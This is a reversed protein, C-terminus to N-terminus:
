QAGVLLDAVEGATAEPAHLVPELLDLSHLKDLAAVLLALNVIGAVLLNAVAPGAVGLTNADDVVGVNNLVAREAREEEVQHVWGREVRLARVEPGLIAAADIRSRILLVLGGELDLLLKLVSKSGRDHDLNLPCLFEPGGLAVVLVVDGVRPASAVDSELWSEARDALCSGCM